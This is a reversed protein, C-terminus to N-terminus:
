GLKDRIRERLEYIEAEMSELKRMLDTTTVSGERGSDSEVLYAAINATVWSFFTIGVVMVFAAIARGEATKPVADGYGVTTMTAVAWWLATGYDDIEGGQEREVLVVMASAALIAVLGMLLVYQLGRRRLLQHTPAWVRAVFPMLRWLRLARLARASRVIRLPRLFPIVVIMVDYWHRALYPIRPEALYTRIVLDAAFIVWILWLSGELAADVQGSVTTLLPVALIPVMALALLTLPWETIREFKALLEARRQSEM